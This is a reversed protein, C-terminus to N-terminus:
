SSRLADLTERAQPVTGFFRTIKDCGYDPCGACTALNRGMVCARIDCEGTHGCKREGATTCGDCWVSEAEFHGGHEKGWEVAIRAIAEADNAQTAQYAKCENCLLGCAGLTRAVDNRRPILNGVYLM